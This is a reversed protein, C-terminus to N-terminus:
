NFRVIIKDVIKFSNKQKKLKRYESHKKILEDKHALWYDRNYNKIEYSNNKNYQIQYKLRKDRNKYYYERQYELAEQSVM